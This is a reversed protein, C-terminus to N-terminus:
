IGVMNWCFDFSSQLSKRPEENRNLALITSANIRAMDLIYCFSVITWKRSKPKCSYSEVRFIIGYRKDCEDTGGKTFDYFKYQAPKKKGDDKTIGLLPQM